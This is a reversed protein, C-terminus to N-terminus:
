GAMGMSSPEAAPAAAAGAPVLVTDIVIVVGNDSKIDRIVKATPGHGGSPTIFVGTSNKSVILTANNGLLTPGLIQGDTLDTSFLVVNPV